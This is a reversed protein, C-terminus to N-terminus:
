VFQYKFFPDSSHRMAGSFSVAPQANENLLVVKFRAKSCMSSPALMLASRTTELEVTLAALQEETRSRWMGVIRNGALLVPRLQRSRGGRVYGPLVGLDPTLARVVAGNEGHARVAVILALSQHQM